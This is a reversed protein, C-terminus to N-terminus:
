DLNRRDGHNKSQTDREQIAYMTTDCRAVRHREVGAGSSLGVASCGAIAKCRLRCFGYTDLWRSKRASTKKYHRGQRRAEMLLTGGDPEASVALTPGIPAITATAGIAGISVVLTV